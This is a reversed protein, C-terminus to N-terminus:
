VSIIVEPYSGGGPKAPPCVYRRCGREQTLFCM